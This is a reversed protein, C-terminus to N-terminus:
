NEVSKEMPEIGILLDMRSNGPQSANLAKFEKQLTVARQFADIFGPFEALVNDGPSDLMRGRYKKM